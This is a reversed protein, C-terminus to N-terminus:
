RDTERDGSRDRQLLTSVRDRLVDFDVPKDLFDAVPLWKRNIDDPGFGLAFRQNVASLILVPVDGLRKHQHHIARALNFGGSIDNPFMVGTIVLDPPKAEMSRVASDPEPETRVDHGADRLTTAVASAYDEDEDVIMLYAMHPRRRVMLHRPLGNAWAAHVQWRHCVLDFHEVSAAELGGQGDETVVVEYGEETLVRELGSAIDREDDVVLIRPSGM